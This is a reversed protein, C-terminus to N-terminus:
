HGGSEIQLDIAAMEGKWAVQSDKTRDKPWFRGITVLVCVKAWLRAPTASTQFWCTTGLNNGFAKGRFTRPDSKSSAVPLNLNLMMLAHCMSGIKLKKRYSVQIQNAPFRSCFGWAMLRCTKFLGQAERKNKKNNNNSYSTRPHNAFCTCM